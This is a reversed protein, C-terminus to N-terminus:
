PEWGGQKANRQPSFFFLDKLYGKESRGKLLWLPHNIVITLISLTISSHLSFYTSLISLCTPVIGIEVKHVLPQPRCLNYSKGVTIYSTLSHFRPKFGPRHNWPGLMSWWPFWIGTTIEEGRWEVLPYKSLVPCTRPWTRTGPSGPDTLFLDRAKLFKCGLHLLFGVLFTAAGQHGSKPPLRRPPMALPRGWLVCVLGLRWSTRAARWGSVWCSPLQHHSVEGPAAPWGPTYNSRPHQLAAHSGPAPGCPSGERTMAASPAPLTFSVCRRFHPGGPLWWDWRLCWFCGPRWPPWPTPHPARRGPATPLRPLSARPSRRVRPLASCDIGSARSSAAEGQAALGEGQPRGAGAEPEDAANRKLLRANGYLDVAQPFNPGWPGQTIPSPCVWNSTQLLLFHKVRVM